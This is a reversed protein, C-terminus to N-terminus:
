NHSKPPPTNGEIHLNVTALATIPSAIRSLSSVEYHFGIIPSHPGLHKLKYGRTGTLSFYVFSTSHM